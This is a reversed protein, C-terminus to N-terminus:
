EIFSTVPRGNVASMALLGHAIGACGPVGGAFAIEPSAPGAGSPGVARVRLYYLGPPVVGSYEFYPDSRPLNAIDARGSAGDMRITGTLYWGAEVPEGLAEVVAPSSAAAGFAHQYVDSGKMFGFVVLVIVLVVVLIVAVAVVVSAGSGADGTGTWDADRM